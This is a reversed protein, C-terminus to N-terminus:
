RVDFALMLTRQVANFNDDSLIYLRTRDGRREAAIGEFNDTTGPLKLEILVPGLTGDAAMRRVRARVDIPARYSRQVVFWGGAPDRDLGTIRYDSDALPTEPPAAAVVCRAPICDWLGGSEGAVRWGDGSAALGEMGDNEPFPFDPRRVAQPNRMATLPGYNWIRHDREFSVLLDGGTTIALGEADGEMKQSIPTGDTLTLRRVHLGELGILRGRGDLALKGRALDGVDSVSIFGGDGTLKLDSLSHLPSDMGALVTVGGAYRVGKGLVAAGPLGLGVTRTSANVASWGYAQPTPSWPQSTAVAGACAALTLAALAAAYIRRNM